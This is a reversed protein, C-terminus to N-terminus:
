DLGTLCSTLPVTISGGKTNGAAANVRRRLLSSRKSKMIRYPLMFPAMVTLTIAHMVVINLMFARLMITKNAVSLM